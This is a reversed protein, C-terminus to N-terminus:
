ATEHIELGYKAATALTLESLFQYHQILLNLAEDKSVGEIRDDEYDWHLLYYVTRGNKTVHAMLDAGRSSTLLYYVPSRGEEDCTPSPEVLSVITEDTETNVIAKKGDVDIVAKASRNPRM